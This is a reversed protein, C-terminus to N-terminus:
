AEDEPNEPDNKHEEMHDFVRALDLAQKEIRVGNYCVIYREDKTTEDLLWKVFDERAVGCTQVTNFGVIAVAPVNANPSYASQYGVAVNIGAPASKKLNQGFAYNPATIIIPLPM